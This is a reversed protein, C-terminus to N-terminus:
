QVSQLEWVSFNGIKNYLKLGQLSNVKNIDTNEENVILYKVNDKRMTEFYPLGNKLAFLEEIHEFSYGKTKTFYFYVCGSLDSGIVVKSNDPISSQLRNLTEKNAFEQPIQWKNETWRSPIIRAMSWAMQLLLLIGSLQLTQKHNKFLQVAAYVLFPILSIFYYSHHKFREIAVLYFLCFSLIGVVVFAVNSTFKFTRWFKVTLYILAILLPWGIILEPTDITLNTFFTSFKEQISIPKIWLGYERLNNKETLKLAYQYWLVVVSTTVITSLGLYFLNKREWKFFVISAFPIILFQFKILGAILAFLTALLLTSIERKQSLKIFYYLAWLAMSLAMIDPMANASDYFLIPNFLLLLSGIFATIPNIKQLILIKYFAMLGLSFVLLCYIRAISNHTGILKYVTALGWEYLPFHSGTIGNTENRRDIKPELINFGEETFNNAM